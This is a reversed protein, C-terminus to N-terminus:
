LDAETYGYKLEIRYLVPFMTKYQVNGIGTDLEGKYDKVYMPHLIQGVSRRKQFKDGYKAKLEKFRKDRKEKTEYLERRRFREIDQKTPDFPRCDKNDPVGDKDTDLFIKETKTDIWQGSDNRMYNRNKSKSYYFSVGRNNFEGAGQYEVDKPIINKPLIKYKEYGYIKNGIGYIPKIRQPQKRGRASDSHVRPDKGIINRYGKGTGKGLGKRIAM